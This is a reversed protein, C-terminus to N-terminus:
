YPSVPNQIKTYSFLYYWHTNKTPIYYVLTIMKRVKSSAGYYKESKKPTQIWLTTWILTTRQNVPKRQSTKWTTIASQTRPKQTMRAKKFAPKKRRTLQKLERTIWPQNYRTTTMKSPVCADLAGMLTSNLDNWMDQISSSLSYKELFQRQYTLAEARLKTTDAKKCLYIKRKVPKTRKPTVSSVIYVIDHDGIGPPITCKNVLSPCNTLFLDLTNEKRTPLTVKQELSCNQISNLFRNNIQASNQNGNVTNSDWSIDPLNLDGGLWIVANKFRQGILEMTTCLDEM